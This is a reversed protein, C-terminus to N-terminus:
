PAPAFGNTSSPAALTHWDFILRVWSLPNATGSSPEPERDLLPEFRATRSQQLAFQDVDPRGSSSLLAQSVPWGRADIM